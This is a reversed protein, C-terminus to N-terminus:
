IAKFDVAKVKTTIRNGKRDFLPVLPRGVLGEPSTVNDWESKFGGTVLEIAEFVNCTAVVPVVELGLKMGVDLVQEYALWWPGVRVDFLVFDQSLSYNGGGKQIGAGYGEGYLTIAEIDREVMMEGLNDNMGDLLQNLRPLLKMPIQANNTRGGISSTLNDEVRDIHLRINTGDVKETWYWENGALYAFEPTSFEGFLFKGRTDRKYISDIKPYLDGNM